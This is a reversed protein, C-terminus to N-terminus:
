RLFIPNTWARRGEADTVVARVYRIGERLDCEAHTLHNGATKRLPYRLTHFSVAAAESCDVCAHGDRVYFDHIKPGCSSYFAGDELAQLIAAANNESRVM